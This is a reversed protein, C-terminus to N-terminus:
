RAAPAVAHQETKLLLVERRAADILQHATYNSLRFYEPRTSVKLTYLGTLGARGLRYDVRSSDALTVSLRLQPADLGDGPEPEHSLVQEVRLQALREALRGAAAQNLSASPATGELQWGGKHDAAIAAVIHLGNVRIGAIDAEGIQLIAKDTWDDSAVPADFLGFAVAYATDEGARRAHTQRPGEPSGLYLTALTEGGNALTIRREFHDDALKFRTLADPDSQTPFDERIALLRRLMEDVKRADAPFDGRDPLIWGDGRRLLETEGDDPGEITIRDVQSAELAFMVAGKKADRQALEYNTLVVASVIVLALVAGIIGLIKEM